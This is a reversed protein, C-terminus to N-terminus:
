LEDMEDEKEDDYIGVVFYDEIKAKGAKVKEWTEPLCTAPQLVYCRPEPFAPPPQKIWRDFAEGNGTKLDDSLPLTGSSIDLDFTARMFFEYAAVPQYAPVMHGAQFVRTFSYNGLQRTIGSFGDDGARTWFMDYEASAWEESRSYPVALAAREGGIWNCAYDRDGYMMHVKVGSDLLYGIADLFGGHIIDNTSAFNEYVTASIASFNVPTGIAGLVDEQMLYGYLYPPPFPDASPHAIDFWGHGLSNYLDIAASGCWPQINECVDSASVLGRNVTNM